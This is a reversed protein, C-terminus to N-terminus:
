QALRVTFTNSRRLEDPLSCDGLDACRGMVYSIQMKGTLTGLPKHTTHEFGNPGRLLLTDVRVEGPELMTGPGMGALTYARTYASHDYPGNPHVLRVGYMPEGVGPGVVRLYVRYPRRNELRVVIPFGVELLPSGPSLDAASYEARDTSLMASLHEPGTTAVGTCSASGLMAAVLWCWAASLNRTM